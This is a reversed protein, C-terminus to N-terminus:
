AIEVGAVWLLSHPAPSWEAEQDDYRQWSGEVEYGAAELADLQGHKASSEPSLTWVPGATSRALTTYMRAYEDVQQDADGVRHDIWAAVNSGATNITESLLQNRTFKAPLPLRQRLLELDPQATAMGVVSNRGVHTTDVVVFAAMARDVVLGHLTNMSRVSSDMSVSHRKIVGLLGLDRLREQNAPDMVMEHVKRGAYGRQVYDLEAVSTFRLQSM